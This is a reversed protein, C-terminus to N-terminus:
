TPPPIYAVVRRAKALERVAGAVSVHEIVVEIARYDSTSGNPLANAFDGEAVYYCDVSLRWRAFTADPIRFAPHRLGGAGDGQGLAVGFRDELPRARFGHFDDLDNYRERGNGSTEFANPGMPYQQPSAGPAHYQLGIAEDLIQEALGQALTQDVADTATQVSTEMALLVVSAAMATITLATIAEILTFGAAAGRPRRAPFNVSPLHDTV